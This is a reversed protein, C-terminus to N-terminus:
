LSLEKWVLVVTRPTTLGYTRPDAGPPLQREIRTRGFADVVQGIRAATAPDPAHAHRGESAAHAGHYFWAGAADREFRHLVGADAIEVAGIQTVPVPLLMRPDLGAGRAARSAIVERYELAAVLAILTVLVLWVVRVRRRM